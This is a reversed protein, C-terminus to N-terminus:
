PRTKSTRRIAWCAGSGVFDAVTYAGATLVKLIQATGNDEPTIQLSAMIEAKNGKGLIEFMEGLKKM